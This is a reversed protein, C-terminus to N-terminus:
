REIEGGLIGVAAQAPAASITVECTSPIAIEATTNIKSLAVLIKCEQSVLNNVVEYVPNFSKYISAIDYNDNIVTAKAVVEEFLRINDPAAAFNSIATSLANVKEELGPFKEVLSPIINNRQNLWTDISDILNADIKNIENSNPRVIKLYEDEATPDKKAENGFELSPYIARQLATGRKDLFDKTKRITDFELPYEPYKIVEITITADISESKLDSCEARVTAKESKGVENEQIEEERLFFEKSTVTIAATGNQNTTVTTEGPLKLYSSVESFNINFGAVSCPQNNNDVLQATIKSTSKGNGVVVPREVTLRLGEARSYIVKVQSKNGERETRDATVDVASVRFYYTINEQLEQKLITFKPFLENGPVKGSLSFGGETASTSKYIKYYDQSDFPCTFNIQEWSLKFGDLKGDPSFQKKVTLGEPAPPLVIEAGISHNITFDGRAGGASFIIACVVMLSLSIKKYYNM